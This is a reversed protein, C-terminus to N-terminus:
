VVELNNKYTFYTGAENRITVKDNFREYPNLTVRVVVGVTGKAVKRGSVVRVTRGEKVEKLEAAAAEARQAEVRASEAAIESEVEVRAAEWQEPTVLAVKGADVTYTPEYYESPMYVSILHLKSAIRGAVGLYSALRRCHSSASGLYFNRTMYDRDQAHAANVDATILELYNTM